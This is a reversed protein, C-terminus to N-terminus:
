EIMQIATQKSHHHRRTKQTQAHETSAKTYAQAKTPSKANEPDEKAFTTQLQKPRILV